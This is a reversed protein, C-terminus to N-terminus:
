EDIAEINRKCEGCLNDKLKDYKFRIIDYDLGLEEIAKMKDMNEKELKETKKILEILLRNEKM